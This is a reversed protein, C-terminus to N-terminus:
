IGLSQDTDAIIVLHNCERPGTREGPAHDPGLSGLLCGRLWPHQLGLGQPLKPIQLSFGPGGPHRGAERFPFPGNLSDGLASPGQTRLTWVAVLVCRANRPCSGPGAVGVSEAQPRNPSLPEERTM